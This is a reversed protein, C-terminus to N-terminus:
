PFYVGALVMALIFFGLVANIKFFALEVNESKKQELYLLYGSILLFPFAAIARIQIFFLFVLVIFAAFHLYASIKLAKVKGFRSSFSYLNEGRDFAEDLTSYIIDFGSVWCFTFFSLMLGPVINELSNTVAFWGGLPAMSLGLGVGFHALSTFRKMYPYVTFIILPLPSLMLCFESILAASTLYVLLGASLVTVADMMSMNGSPLERRSTRPNRKDIHRDIIRNLALAATRAGTAGLLILAILKPSPPNKSALFVGSFILPLSFLTHEIKVFRAISHIKQLAM